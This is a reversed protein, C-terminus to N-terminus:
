LQGAIGHAINSAEDSTEQEGDRSEPGHWASVPGLKGSKQCGWLLCGQGARHTRAWGNQSLGEQLQGVIGHAINSAEDSTEQEGERSEPGQWASVPGLKGSKQCGWCAIPGATPSSYHM